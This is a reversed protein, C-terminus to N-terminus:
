YNSYNYLKLCVKNFPTPQRPELLSGTWTPHPQEMRLLLLEFSLPPSSNVRKLSATAQPPLSVPAPTRCPKKHSRPMPSTKTCLASNPHRCQTGPSSEQVVMLDLELDGLLPALLAPSFVSSCSDSFQWGKTALRARFQSIPVLPDALMWFPLQCWLILWFIAWPCAHLGSGFPVQM